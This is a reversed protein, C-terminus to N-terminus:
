TGSSCTMMEQLSPGLRDHVSRRGSQGDEGGGHRSQLPRSLPYGQQVSGINDGGMAIAQPIPDSGDRWPASSFTIRIPYM